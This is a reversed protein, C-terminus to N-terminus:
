NEPIRVELLKSESNPEIEVGSLANPVLISDGLQYEIEGGEFRLLGNGQLCM